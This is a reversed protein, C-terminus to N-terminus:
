KFDIRSLAFDFIKDVIEDRTLKTKDKIEELTKLHDKRVKMTVQQLEKEEFILKDNKNDNIM